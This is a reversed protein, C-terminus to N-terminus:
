KVMPKKYAKKVILHYKFLTANKIIQATSFGKIFFDDSKLLNAGELIQVASRIDSNSYKWISNYLVDNNKKLVMNNAVEYLDYALDRQNYKLLNITSFTFDDPTKEVALYENEKTIKDFNDSIFKSIVKIKELNNNQFYYSLLPNFIRMPNSVVLISSLDNYELNEIEKNLGLKTIERIKTINNTKYYGDYLEPLTHTIIQIRYPEIRKPDRNYDNLIKGIDFYPIEVIKELYELSKLYNGKSKELYSKASYYHYIGALDM